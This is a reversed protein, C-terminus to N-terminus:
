VAWGKNAYVEFYAGFRHPILRRALLALIM